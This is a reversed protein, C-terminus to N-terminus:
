SVGMMSMLDIPDAPASIEEEEGFRSFTVTGSDGGEGTTVQLPYAPEDDAVFLRSGDEQEVVVVDEGDLEESSVEEAIESDPDRFQQVFGDLSIEEFEAVAEGPVIVWRGDFQSAMEAPMGFSAWFDSPAQLYVEGDVRLLEIESGGMTVSGTVDDGQLHLDLEGEEGGEAMTGTVHFSGAEELADAAADAVEPGTMGDLPSSSGCATLLLASAAAVALQPIRMRM